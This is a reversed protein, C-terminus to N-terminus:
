KTIRLEKIKDRLYAAREFELHKSANRMEATLQEILKEKEEKTRKKFKKM